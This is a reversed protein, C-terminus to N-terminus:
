PTRVQYFGAGGTAQPDVLTLTSSTATGEAVKTWTGSTLDLKRWLSYATGSQAECTVSFQGAGTFRYGVIKFPKETSLVYVQLTKISYIAANDMFTWDPNAGPSNGIGIDIFDIVGRSSRMRDILNGAAGGAILALAVTAYGNQSSIRRRYVVLVGLMVAAILAFGVRSYSGLSLGMAAQPNYTLTFRVVDGVVPHPVHPPTLREVALDKTTCDLAVLSLLLPWFALSKPLKM